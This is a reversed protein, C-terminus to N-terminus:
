FRIKCREALSCWNSTNFKLNSNVFNCWINWKIIFFWYKSILNLYDELSWVYFYDNDYVNPLFSNLIHSNTINDITIAEM